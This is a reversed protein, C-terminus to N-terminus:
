GDAVPGSAPEATAPAAAAAPGGVLPMLAAVAAMLRDTAEQARASRSGAAVGALDVPPGFAVRVPGLREQSGWIAAPVAVVGRELALSGAGPWGRRLRGERSRTGEPFMLLADGRALIARALRLATRDAGGRRVPFAGQSAIFPGLLPVRFLEEKAMYHLVRSACAVGVLPPDKQSVHNCVLLLPGSAPLHERGSVRMRLPGYAWPGLFARAVRWWPRPVRPATATM